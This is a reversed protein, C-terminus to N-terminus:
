PKDAIEFLIGGKQLEPVPVIRKEAAAEAILLEWKDQWNEALTKSEEASFPTPNSGFGMAAVWKKVFGPDKVMPSLNVYIHTFGLQKMAKVYSAGDKMEDYPIVTSHGPNAWMYPVDLLFGFVEDYLAVKGKVAVKNIVQSPVYFGISHTQYDEATVKGLAPQIQTQFRQAYILFFSYAAQLLTVAALVKGLALRAIAGGALLALPVSLPVIYRSQQSLFFWMLLSTGVAALIGAEFTRLKGSLLWLLGSLLIVVGVAGLPTGLGLEEQPNVYRGPQYALGLVANGVETPDHRSAEQGAGFKQQENRYIDARRQDWNKGGLKEFFFPYVPNGTYVINKVYWPGAIAMAVLGVTAGNRVGEALRGKLALGVVLVIVSVAITQLGTYKTGAAFGLLIAGLWLNSRNKSDALFAAIFAIGLGGFLGHPVDIYGTGSEWLVVPISVFALASWWSAKEGFIRRSMGFISLIGLVFFMMSFAKAGSQGGWALGWVFLSEVTSPFNSHHINSLYQIQGAQLWLKPVALHYALTDWDLTDSPALVSVLIFLTAVSFALVFLLNTSEPKTFRFAGAKFGPILKFYGFASATGVVFLGWGFGDPLLGIFFTLLGLAGLGILGSIGISEAPDLDITWRRTLYGGLGIAGISFLLTVIVGLM